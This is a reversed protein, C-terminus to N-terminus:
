LGSVSFGFRASGLGLWGPFFGTKMRFYVFRVSVPLNQGTETRVLKPKNETKKKFFVPKTIKKKIFVSGFQFHGGRYFLVNFVNVLV